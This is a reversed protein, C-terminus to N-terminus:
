ARGDINFKEKDAVPVIKGKKRDTQKLFLWLFLIDKEGTAGFWYCYFVIFYKLHISM